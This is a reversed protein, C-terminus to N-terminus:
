SQPGHSAYPPPFLLSSQCILVRVGRELLGELYHYTPHHVDLTASSGIGGFAHSVALSSSVWPGKWEPDIGLTKQVEATNLYPTLADM